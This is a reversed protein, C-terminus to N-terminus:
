AGKVGAPLEAATARLLEARVSLELEFRAQPDGLADGFLQEIQHVRYRVTQPHVGLLSAVAAAQGRTALWADLTVLVRERQRVTLDTLPALRRRVLENILVDDAFLTLALASTVCDIVPGTILKREALDIARRAVRLSAYVDVLEVPPGVAVLWGPFAEALMKPDA